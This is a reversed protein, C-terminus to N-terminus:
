TGCQRGEPECSLRFDIFTCTADPTDNKHTHVNALLLLGMRRSFPCLFFIKQKEWCMWSSRTWCWCLCLCIAISKNSQMDEVSNIAQLWLSREVRRWEIM